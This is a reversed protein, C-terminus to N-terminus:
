WHPQAALDPGLTRVPRRAGGAGGGGEAPRFAEGVIRAPEALQPAAPLDFVTAASAITGLSARAEAIAQSDRRLAFVGNVGRRIGAFFPKVEEVFSALLVELDDTNGTGSMM